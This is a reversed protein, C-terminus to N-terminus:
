KSRRPELVAKLQLWVSEEYSEKLRELGDPLTPVIKGPVKKLSRGLLTTAETDDPRRDLVARFREAAEDLEGKRFLLYGVNFHYDPDGPDGELAKQFSALAESQSSRSQAAGLNNWVENLPVSEAVTQFAKAASTFEGLRYRCLGLFFTAERFFVDSAPVKLFSESAAKWSKQNFHIRGLEFHAQSYRPDLRAAQSILRLKSDPAPSLLGRIFSEIADVRIVPRSARFAEESPASDPMVIRLSQWALHNQLRALDELAGTESFQPGQSTKRLNLVHAEVRLTGQIKRLAPDGPETFGFTGYIVQDADLSEGIRVITARTLQVAPRVSLRRFAEERAQRDLVIIGESALAEQVSASLSEGIWSLNPDSSLNHFPLVLCTEASSPVAACLVLLAALASRM